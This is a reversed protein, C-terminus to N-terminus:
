DGVFLIDNLIERKSFPKQKQLLDNQSFFVFTINESQLLKM